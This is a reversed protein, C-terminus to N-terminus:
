RLIAYAIGGIIVLIVSLGFLWSGVFAFLMYALVGTIVLAVIWRGANSEELSPIKRLLGETIFLGVISLVVALGYRITDYLGLAGKFFDKIADWLSAFFGKNKCQPDAEDILGNGDNDIGDDCIENPQLRCRYTNGFAECGYDCDTIQYSGDSRCTWLESNGEECSKEGTICTDVHTSDYYFTCYDEACEGSECSGIGVATLKCTARETGEQPVTLGATISLTRSSGSNITIPPSPTITQSGKNCEVYYSFSDSDEGINKLTASVTKTRGSDIDFNSPCTLKPEGTSVYIGVSEAIIDLVFTPYSIPTNLDAYLKNSIIEASDVLDEDDAWQDTQDITLSDFLARYDKARDFESSSVGNSDFDYELDSLFDNLTNLNGDEVMRYQNNSNRFYADYDISGLNVNSQLNGSWKVFVYPYLSNDQLKTDSLTITEDFVRSYVETEWKIGETSQFGADRGKEVKAICDGEQFPLNYHQWINSDPVSSPLNMLERCVDDDGLTTLGFDVNEEIELDFYKGSKQQINYVKEEKTLKIDILDKKDPDIEFGQSRLENIEESGLKINLCESTPVTSATVRVVDRQLENSFTLEVDDISMVTGSCGGGYSSLYSGIGLFTVGGIILALAIMVGFVILLVRGVDTEEKARYKPM